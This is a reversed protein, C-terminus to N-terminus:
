ATIEAAAAGTKRKAKSAKKLKAKPKKTEASGSEVPSAETAPAESLEALTLLQDLASQIGEALSWLEPVQERCAQISFHMQDACSLFTINPGQGSIIPGAGFTSEVKAGAMYLDVPPGPVNSIVVNAATPSRKVVGPKMASKLLWDAMTPPMTGVYNQVLNEFSQEFVTKAAGTSRCVALVLEATDDLQVPLRVNMTGVQNTQDPHRSQEGKLALSVPMCCILPKDPLDDTAILYERLAITCAVIVVDNVTIGLARKVRKVEALPLSGFAISRNATIPANFKLRPAEEFLAPM